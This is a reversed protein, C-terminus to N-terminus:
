GSRRHTLLIPDHCKNPTPTLACVLILPGSVQEAGLTSFGDRLNPRALQPPICNIIKHFSACTISSTQPLRTLELAGKGDKRQQREYRPPQKRDLNTLPTNAIVASLELPLVLIRVDDNPLFYAATQETLDHIGPRWEAPIATKCSSCSVEQRTLMTAAATRRAFNSSARPSRRRKM